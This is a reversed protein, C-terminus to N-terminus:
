GAASQSPDGPEDQSAQPEAVSAASVPRALLSRLTGIANDLRASVDNRAADLSQARALAQDLDVALRERDQRMLALETELDRLREDRSGRRAQAAELAGVAGNLRDLAVLLDLPESM